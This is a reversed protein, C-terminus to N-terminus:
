KRGLMEPAAEAVVARQEELRIQLEELDAEANLKGSACRPKFLDTVNATETIRELSGEASNAWSVAMDVHKYQGGGATQASYLDRRFALAQILAFGVSMPTACIIRRWMIPPKQQDFALCGRRIPYCSDSGAHTPERLAAEMDRFLAKRM